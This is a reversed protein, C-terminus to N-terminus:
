GLEGHRAGFFLVFWDDVVACRFITLCVGVFVESGITEDCDFVCLECVM